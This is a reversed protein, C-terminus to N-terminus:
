RVVIESCVKKLRLFKVTSKPCCENFTVKSQGECPNSLCSFMSRLTESSRIFIRFGDLHHKYRKELLFKRRKIAFFAGLNETGVDLVFSIVKGTAIYLVSVRYRQRYM